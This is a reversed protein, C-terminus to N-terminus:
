TVPPGATRCGWSRGADHTPASPRRPPPPRPRTSGRHLRWRLGLWCARRGAPAAGVASRPASSHRWPLSSLLWVLGAALARAGPCGCPRCPFTTSPSRGWAPPPGPTCRTRCCRRRRRAALLPPARAPMMLPARAAAALPLPKRAPPRAAGAPWAAALLEGSGQLAVVCAAGACLGRGAALLGALPGRVRAQQWCGSDHTVLDLLLDFAAERSVAGAGTVQQARAAAVCAELEARAVSFQGAAALRQYAEGLRGAEAQAQQAQQAGGGGSAARLRATEASLLAHLRQDRLAQAGIAPFCVGLLLQEVLGHAQPHWDPVARNILPRASPTCAPCPLPAAPTDAGRQAPGAGRRM